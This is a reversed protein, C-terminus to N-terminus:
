RIIFPDEMTGSGSIYTNSGSIYFSELVPHMQLSSAIDVMGYLVEYNEYTNDAVSSITWFADGYDNTIYNYNKCAGSYINKCNEDLSVRIYEYVNITGLYGSTTQLCEVPSISDNDQERKGICWDYNLIYKKVKSDLKDYNNSLSEQLGSKNYDNIGYGDRELESNYRSDWSVGVSSEEDAILKLNGNSDIGLIRYITDNLKIYNNVEKGRYYYQTADVYLGDDESVLDEKLREAITKTKYESCSLLVNYLYDNGNKTVLTYGDCTADDVYKSINKMNGASVLESVTIKKTEGDDKPLNDPNNNFYMVTANEIINELKNYNNGKNVTKMVIIIIVIIVIFIILIRAFALVLKRTGEDLGSLLKKM